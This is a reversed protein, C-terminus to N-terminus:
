VLCQVNGVFILSNGNNVANGTCCKVNNSCQGGIAGVTCSLLANVNVGLLGAIVTAIPGSPPQTNCCYPKYDGSCTSPTINTRAVVEAPAAAATMALTLFTVVSSFQM